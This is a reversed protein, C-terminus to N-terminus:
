FKGNYGKDSVNQAVDALAQRSIDPTNSFIGDVGLHYALQTDEYSDVTYTFVKIGNQHAHDIFAKDLHDIDPIVIDAQLERAYDSHNLPMMNIPGATTIHPAYDRKFAQVEYHYFSSVIFQDYRWGHDRVYTDIVAAVLKASGVTKLEIVVPVRAGVVDLFEQLTPIREGKGADLKRLERFSHHLLYGRGSTTRQLTRDHFLVLEGGPLAYVDCELMDAGQELAKTFSRLTNEPEYAPAGRHGIILVVGM